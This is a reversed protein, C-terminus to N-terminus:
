QWTVKNKGTHKSTYLREDALTFPQDSSSNDAVGLSITISTDQSWTLAEVSARIHEALTVAQQSNIYPCFICFEEGGYRFLQNGDPLLQEATRCINVLVEDGFQHGYIDNCSKFNDVDLVIISFPLHNILAGNYIYNFHQRNFSGTLGDLRAKDINRKLTIFFTGVVALFAVFWYSNNSKLANVQILNVISQTLSNYAYKMFIAMDESRQRILVPSTEAIIQRYADLQPTSIGKEECLALIAYLHELQINGYNHTSCYDVLVQSTELAEEIKGNKFLVMSLVDLHSVYLNLFPTSNELLNDPLSLLLEESQKYDGQLFLCRAKIIQVMYSYELQLDPLNRALQEAEELYFMADDVRDTHSYIDALNVYAYYRITDAETQNPIQIDLIEHVLQESNHFAHFSNMALVLNFRSNAISYYDQCKEFYFLAHGVYNVANIYDPAFFYYNYLTESCIGKEQDPLYKNNLYEELRIVNEKTIPYALANHYEYFEQSVKQAQITNYLHFTGYLLLILILFNRILHLTFQKSSKQTWKFVLPHFRLRKLATM